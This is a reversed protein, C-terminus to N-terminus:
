ESEEIARNLSVSFYIKTNKKYDEYAQAKEGGELTRCPSVPVRDNWYKDKAKQRYETGISQEQISAYGLGGTGIGSDAISKKNIEDFSADLSEVYSGGIIQAEIQTDSDKGEQVKLYAKWMRKLYPAKAEDTGKIRSLWDILGLIKTLKGDKKTILLVDDVDRSRVAWNEARRTMIEYPKMQYRGMNYISKVM